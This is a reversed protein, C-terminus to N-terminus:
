AYTSGLVPSLSVHQGVNIWSVTAALAMAVAILAVLLWTALAAGSTVAFYLGFSPLVILVFALTQLRLKRLDKTLKNKMAAM